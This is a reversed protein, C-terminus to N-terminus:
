TFASLVDRSYAVLPAGTRVREVLDPNALFLKGFAIADFAGAEIARAATEPTYGGNGFLVGPWHRRLWASSTGGLYDYAIDDVIGTHLYGLGVPALAELAAIFADEDGPTQRMESFYAAPSLRLGIRDAGIEAAIAEVVQVTFRARNSASGGWQDTRRNTHLRLFQEPLYGNAGHIEVMDHGAEVVARKAAAAYDGIARAIDAESMAVPTEHFLKFGGVQRREAADLVASPAEPAVGTFHSHAMRGPHWLQLAIRGGKAHVAEAVRAWGDVHSPLFIGPTDLYGQVHRAILVAESILLGAAARSAYHTIAGATPGLDATARNRTCPALLVRNPLTLRGVGLPAFLTSLDSV